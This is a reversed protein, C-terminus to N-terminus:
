KIRFQNRLGLALFFLLIVSLVSHVPGIVGILSPLDANPEPYGYLCEYAEATEFRLHNGVAPLANRWALRSAAWLNACDPNAAAARYALAFVAWLGLWCILPRKISRGFDSVLDYLIQLWWRPAYRSSSALWRARKESKFFALESAHDHGQIALRKLARYKAEDADSVGSLDPKGWARGYSRFKNGYDHARSFQYVISGFVRAVRFWWDPPDFPLGPVELDDLRPAERFNAQDFNPMTEFDVGILSFGRDARAAVFVAECPDDGKDTKRFVAHSFTTYGGFIVQSFMARGQFRADPFRAGKLLEADEFYAAKCFKSRGFSAPSRFTVSRFDADDRFAAGDFDADGRFTTSDFLAGDRFTSGEFFAYGRFTADAFFADGRFTTGDVFAAGRFTADDFYATGRFTARAFYATGRFTTSDFHTNGRFTASGFNTAGRFTASRFSTNGRFTTSDFDADGRFTASGFNVTGRFTAIGFLADGPFIYGDFRIATVTALISNATESGADEEQTPSVTAPHGNTKDTTSADRAVLRIDSFDARAASEWEGAEFKKKRALLDNAWDNWIAKAKEHAEESLAGADLARKRAAECKEFLAITEDRTM